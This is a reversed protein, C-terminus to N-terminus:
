PTTVTEVWPWGLGGDRVQAVAPGEGLSQLHQPTTLLKRKEASGELRYELEYERFMLAHTIMTMGVITAPVARAPSRDLWANAMFCWCMATVGGLLLSGAAVVARLLGGRFGTGLFPREAEVAKGAARAVIARERVRRQENRHNLYLWAFVGGGLLVAGALGPALARRFDFQVPEYRGFAYVNAFLVLLIPPVAAIQLAGRWPSSPVPTTSQRLNVDPSLELFAYLRLTKALRNPLYVATVDDGVKFPTDYADKRSSAFENSKVQAVEVTGTEPHRFSVTAVLGHTSPQGNIVTRPGKAIDLVRAALPLGERVYRFPGRHTALPFYAAAGGALLVL